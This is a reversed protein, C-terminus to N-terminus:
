PRLRPVRGNIIDHYLFQPIRITITIAITITITIHNSHNFTFKNPVLM